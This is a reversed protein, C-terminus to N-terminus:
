GDDSHRIARFITNEAYKACHDEDRCTNRLRKNTKRQHIGKTGKEQTFDKSATRTVARQWEVIQQDGNRTMGMEAAISADSTEGKIYREAAQIRKETPYMARRSM